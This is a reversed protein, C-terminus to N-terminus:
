SRRPSALIERPRAVIEWTLKRPLWTIVEKSKRPDSPKGGTRIISSLVRFGVRARSAEWEGLFKRAKRSTM